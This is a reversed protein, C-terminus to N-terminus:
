DAALRLLADFLSDLEMVADQAVDMQLDLAQLDRVRREYLEVMQNLFTTHRLGWEAISNQQLTLATSRNQSERQLSAYSNATSLTIERAQRLTKKLLPSGIGDRHALLVAEQVALQMRLKGNAIRRNAHARSQISNLAEELSSYCSLGVADVHTISCGLQSKALRQILVAFLKSM